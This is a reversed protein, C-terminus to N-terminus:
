EVDRTREGAGAKISEKKTIKKCILLTFNSFFDNGYCLKMYSMDSWADAIFCPKLTLMITRERSFPLYSIESDVDSLLLTCERIRGPLAKPNTEDREDINITTRLGNFL